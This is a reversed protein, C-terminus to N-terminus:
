GQMDLNEGAGTVNGRTNLEGSGQQVGGCGMGDWGSTKSLAPKEFASLSDQKTAPSHLCPKKDQPSEGEQFYMISNGPAPGGAGKEEM